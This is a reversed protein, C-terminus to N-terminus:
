PGSPPPPACVVGMLVQGTQPPVSGPRVWKTLTAFPEVAELNAANARTRFLVAASCLTVIAAAARLAVRAFKARVAALGVPCDATLITGDARQYLRVCLRGERAVILREAEERSMAAINYVNLDCQGCHRVRADGSMSEWPATCPSAIRVRDLISLPVTRSM